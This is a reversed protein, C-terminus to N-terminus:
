SPELSGVAVEAPDSSSPSASPSTSHSSPCLRALTDEICEVAQQNGCREYSALRKRYAPRYKLFDKVDRATLPRDFVARGLGEHKLSLANLTQEFIGQNPVVLLPKGLYLAESILTFGATCIVASSSALDDLFGNLSPPKVQVNGQSRSAEPPDSCYMIFPTDDVQQLTEIVHRAGDPHNYYVLVHEGDSSARAQVAPRIIPPVLTTQAPHKLPGFFFSTLLVHEPNTPAIWRIAASTLAAAPWHKMPLDYEMETVVQQHNFSIVPLGIRRAARPSFAEFDTILLDPQRASFTEALQNIVIPMRLLIKSNRCLTKSYRIRNDELVQRLAPVPIVHEGQDELIQRATGGCCFTITHGRQRLATAIAM